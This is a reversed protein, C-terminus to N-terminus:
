GSMPMGPLPDRSVVDEGGSHTLIEMSGDMVVYASDSADGQHFLVEGHDFTLLESTFAVLKLKASNLRSFMPVRRLTEAMAHLEM